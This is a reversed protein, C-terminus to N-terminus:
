NELNLRCYWLIMSNQIWIIVYSYFCKQNRHSSASRTETVPSAQTIHLVWNPCLQGCSTKLLLLHMVVTSNSSFKGLRCLGLSKRALEQVVTTSWWTEQLRDNQKKYVDGLFKSYDILDSIDKRCSSCKTSVLKAHRWVKLGPTCVPRLKLVNHKNLASVMLISVQICRPDPASSGATVAMSNLIYM